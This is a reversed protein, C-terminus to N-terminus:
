WGQKKLVQVRKLAAMFGDKFMRRWRESKLRKRKMGPREYFRQKAFDQRVRNTACAMSLLAFARSLEVKGKVEVTRGTSPTLRMVPRERKVEIVTEALSTDSKGDKHFPMLDRFPSENSPLNGGWVNM